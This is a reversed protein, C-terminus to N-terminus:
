QPNSKNWLYLKGIDEFEEIGNLFISLWEKQADSGSVSLETLKDIYDHLLNTAGRGYFNESGNYFRVTRWTDNSNVYDTYFYSYQPSYVYRISDTNSFIEVADKNSDKPESSSIQESWDLTLYFCMDGNADKEEFAASIEATYDTRMYYSPYLVGAALKSTFSLVEKLETDSIEFLVEQKRNFAAAGAGNGAHVEVSLWVYGDFSYFKNVSPKETGNVAIVGKYEGKYFVYYENPHFYAGNSYYIKVVDYLDHVLHETKVHDVTFLQAEFKTNEAIAEAYEQPIDSDTKDFLRELGDIIEATDDVPQNDEDDSKPISENVSETKTKADSEPASVTTGSCGCIFVFLLCFILVFSITKVQM